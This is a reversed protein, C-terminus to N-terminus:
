PLYWEVSLSGLKLGLSMWNSISSPFKVPESITYTSTSPILSLLGSTILLVYVAESKLEVIVQQISQDQIM